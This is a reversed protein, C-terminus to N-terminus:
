FRQLFCRNKQEIHFFIHLPEKGFRQRNLIRQEVTHLTDCTRRRTIRLYKRPM